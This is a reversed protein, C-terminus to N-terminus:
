AEEHCGEMTATLSPHGPLGLDGVYGEESTYFAFITRRKINGFFNVGVKLEEPQGEHLDSIPDLLASLEDTSLASIGKKYEDKARAELWALGELFLKHQAEGEELLQLDIFQHAKADRAGPTETKPIIAECLAAVAEAQDATFLLPKWAGAETQAIAIGGRGDRVYMWDIGAATLAAGTTLGLMERRTMHTTM